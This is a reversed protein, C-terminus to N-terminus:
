THEGGLNQANRRELGETFDARIDICNLQNRNLTDTCNRNKSRSLKPGSITTVLSAGQGLSM